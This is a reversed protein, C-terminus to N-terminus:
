YVNYKQNHRDSTQPIVVKPHGDWCGTEGEWEKNDCTVVRWTGADYKITLRFYMFDNIAM